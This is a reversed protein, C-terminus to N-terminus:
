ADVILDSVTRESQTGPAILLDYTGAAIGFIIRGDNDSTLVTVSNGDKDTVTQLNQTGSEYVEVQRQQQVNGRRDTITREVTPM